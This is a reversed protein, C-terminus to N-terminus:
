LFLVRRQPVQLDLLQAPDFSSLQKWLDEKFGEGVVKACVFWVLFVRVVILTYTVTRSLAIHLCSIAFAITWTAAYALAVDPNVHVGDLRRDLRLVFDRHYHEVASLTSPTCNRPFQHRPVLVVRDDLVVPVVPQRDREMRGEFRLALSRHVQHCPRPQSSFACRQTGLAELVYCASANMGGCASWPLPDLSSGLLYLTAYSMSLADSVSTAVHFYAMTYSLGIFAPSCELAGRNGCHRFQGLIAEMHLMPVVLVGMVVAYM